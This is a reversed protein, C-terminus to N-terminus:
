ALPHEPLGTCWGGSLDIKEGFQFDVTVAGGDDDYLVHFSIFERTMDLAKATIRNEAVKFVQGHVPTGIEVGPNVWSTGDTTMVPDELKGAALNVVVRSTCFMDPDCKVKSPLARVVDSCCIILWASVLLSLAYSQM